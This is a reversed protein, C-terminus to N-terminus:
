RGAGPPNNLIMSLADQCIRAPTFSVLHGTQPRNNLLHLLLLFAPLSLVAGSKSPLRTPFSMNAVVCTCVVERVKKDGDDHM